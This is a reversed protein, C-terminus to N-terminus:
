KTGIHDQVAQDEMAEMVVVSLLLWSVDHLRAPLLAIVGESATNAILAIDSCSKETRALAVNSGAVSM